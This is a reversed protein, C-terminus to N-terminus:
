AGIGLKELGNCVLLEVETLFSILRNGCTDEGFM